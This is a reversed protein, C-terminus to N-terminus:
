EQHEKEIAGDPKDALNKFRVEVNCDEEAFNTDNDNRKQRYYTDTALADNENEQTMIVIDDNEQQRSADISPLVFISL